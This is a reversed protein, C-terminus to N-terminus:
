SPGRLVAKMEEKDMFTTIIIELPGPPAIYSCLWGHMGDNGVIKEKLKRVNGNHSQSLVPSTVTYTIPLGDM